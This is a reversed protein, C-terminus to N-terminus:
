TTVAMSHMEAAPRCKGGRMVQGAEVWRLVQVVWGVGPQCKAQELDPYVSLSILKYQIRCM